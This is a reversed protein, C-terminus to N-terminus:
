TFRENELSRYIIHLQRQNKLDIVVDKKNQKPLFQSRTRYFLYPSETKQKLLDNWNM